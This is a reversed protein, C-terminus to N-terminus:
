KGKILYFIYETVYPLTKPDTLISAYCWQVGCNSVARRLSLRHEDYLKCHMIYHMTTEREDCYNCNGSNHLQLRFLHYNLRCHGTWIRFLVQSFNTTSVTSCVEKFLLKYQAGSLANQFHAKWQEVCNSKIVQRMEEKTAEMVISEMIVSRPLLNNSMTQTTSLKALWDAHENGRIGSHGPVWLFAVSICENSLCQLSLLIQKVFYHSSCNMASIAHLSSLSDTCIINERHGSKSVWSLANVIAFLEATFVSSYNSIRVSLQFQFTPVFVSSSTGFESKSGDTYIRVHNFYRSNIHSLFYQEVEVTNRPAKCFEVLFLDVTPATFTWVPLPETIKHVKMQEPPFNGTSAAFLGFREYQPLLCYFESDLVTSTPHQGFTMLHAKYFLCLQQHRFKIPMENCVHQLCIAATSRMVGTCIRLAENQLKQLEALAYASSGFAEIGYELIPRILCRYLTLMPAIGVGWTTGRLLRLLNMRKLCRNRVYQVHSQYSGTTEVMVGLYKFVSKLPLISNNLELKVNHCQKRTFLMAVSKSVSVKFGWNNCWSTVTHLARQVSLNLDKLDNGVQWFSFDDAFLASPLDICGPLDNILINFLLPSIVSGQPTGNQLVKCDSYVSSIRVQFTRGSLFSRIFEFMRGSLGIRRLKLLIADRCVMDYAKEFDLFVALVSRRECLAKKVVDHLRLVHDLTRRRNRFGSQEPSYISNFEMYWKLRNAVMKEILKCLTCTLSIPRYSSPLHTPKNPKHIPIVISHLWSKPISATQWINNLLQLIVSLANDSLHQFMVYCIKDVGPATNKAGRIVSKLEALSFDVNILGDNRDSSGPLHNRFSELERTIQVRNCIFQPSYNTDLSASYFQEALMNAKERESIGLNDASSRLTPISSSGSTTRTFKKVVRWVNALKANNTISSCYDEWADQKAKLITQRAKARLRKFVIIDTPHRTRKMRNFACTRAKIANACAANWWPVTPRDTAKTVPITSSAVSFLTNTVQASFREVDTSVLTENLKQECQESFAVWNAKSFSWRPPPCAHWAREGMIRTTVISHDSGLFDGTVHVTCKSALRPSAITLDLLSWAVNSANTSFHTPSAINLVVFDHQEVISSITRGNWNSTASGWMPHHANFDGLLLLKPHGCVVSNLASTLLKNTPPNYVNFLVLDNIQIGLFQVKEDTFSISLENFSISSKVLFCVGGGRGLHPPRDKRVISYGSIIPEYKSSLFTEQLCIVDPVPDMMSIYAKFEPLKRYISRCNWQLVNLAMM